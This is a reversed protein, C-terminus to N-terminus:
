FSIDLIKENSKHGAIIVIKSKKIKLYKALLEIVEINAKGKEPAITVKVKYTNESLKEVLNARAKTQVKVFINM